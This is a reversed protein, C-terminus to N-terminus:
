TMFTKIRQFQGPWILLVDLEHCLDEWLKAHKINPKKDIALVAKVTTKQKLNELRQSEFRYSLVQGLGLRLQNSEEDGLTKVECVCLINAKKWKIDVILKDMARTSDPQYGNKRLWTSLSNQLKNHQATAKVLAENSTLWNKAVSNQKENAKVYQPTPKASATAIQPLSETPLGFSAWTPSLKPDYQQQYIAAFTDVLTPPAIALYTLRPRLSKWRNQGYPIFPFYLSQGEICEADHIKKVYSWQARIQELTLIERPFQIFNTLLVGTDAGIKRPRTDSVTSVGVFCGRKSDWHIVKDGQKVLKLLKLVQTTNHRIDVGIDDNPRRTIEIWVRQASESKWWLKRKTQQKTASVNM